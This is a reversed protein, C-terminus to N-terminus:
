LKTSIFKVTIGVNANTEWVGSIKLVYNLKNLPVLNAEDSIQIKISGATLQNCLNLLPTKNPAHMTIYQRIVSREINCLRNVLDINDPHLPDFELTYKVSSSTHSYHTLKKSASESSVPYASKQKFPPFAIYIGNLEMYENSYLIKIFYGDIIVNKKKDTFFVNQTAVKDFPISVQMSYSVLIKTHHTKIDKYESTCKM